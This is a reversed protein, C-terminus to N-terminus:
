SRSVEAFRSATRGGARDYIELLREIGGPAPQAGTLRPATLAQEVAAVLADADGPAFLRTGPPRVGVNSAVVPVGLSLAERVSNADGDALTPRVFVSSRAMVALCTERPLDGALLVAGELGRLAVRERAKAQQEGSGMVVCGLHPHRARLRAVAEVLLEFGYEPRFFIATSITPQRAEMFSQLAPPLGGAAAPLFAPLVEIRHGSVGGALVADRLEHNVCVIRDYLLSAAWVLARRWLPGAKIFGSAMGSHLTLITAPSPLAATGAIAATLWSKVNHGNTHLHVAWGTAAYRLVRWFLGAPGGQSLYETSPPAHRDTNLVRCEIGAASLHRCAEAVHVSVGGHPPPYPGILLLKM